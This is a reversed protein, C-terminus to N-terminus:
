LEGQFTTVAGPADLVIRGVTDVNESSALTESSPEGLNETLMRVIFARDDEALRWTQLLASGDARFGAVTIVGYPATM